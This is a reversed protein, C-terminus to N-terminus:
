GYLYAPDPEFGTGDTDAYFGGPDKELTAADPYDPCDAATYFAYRGVFPLRELTYRFLSGEKVVERKTVVVRTRVQAGNRDIIDRSLLDLVEGIQRASDKASVEVMYTQRGDRSILTSQACAREALTLQSAAFWRTAIVKVQETGHETPGEGLPDGVVRIRYSAADKADKVPSRLSILADTRSVRETLDRRVDVPKTLHHRDTWTGISSVAPRVAKVRVLGQQDDWWIIGAVAELLEQVIDLVKAPKSLVASLEYLNLWVSQEEAWESLALDDEDVGGFDVLVSRLIETVAENTWVKCLQITDGATHDEAETGLAGRDTLTLVAGVRTYAIVEEGIRVYGSADYETARDVPEITASGAGSAIDNLLYGRSPTPVEREGLNLLQLPGAGTIRLKGNTPGQVDRVQFHHVITDADHWVGDTSWGEIVRMRRATWYPNRAMLKGFFTGATHDVDDRSVDDYFPDERRDDDNFDDLEISVQGFYGIGRGIRIEEPSIKASVLCPIANLEPIAKQTGTMYRRTKTTVALDGQDTTAPTRYCFSGDPNTATVAVDDIWDLDIEVVICPTRSQRQAHEAWTV